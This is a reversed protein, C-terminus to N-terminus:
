APEYKLWRRAARSPVRSTFLLLKRAAFNWGLVVAQRSSNPTDLYFLDCGETLTWILLQNM